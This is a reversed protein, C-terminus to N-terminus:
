YLEYKVLRCEIPGNFLVIRKTSKLGISKILELDSTFIYADHGSYRQKLTDGIAKYLAILKKTEGSNLREGYPPNTVIIGSDSKKQTDKFDSVKIEMFKRVDARRANSKAIEINKKSLDSAYIKGRLVNLKRSKAETVIKLYIRKNYSLLRQFGFSKRLLGPAIDLAILAAEIAITGSGCMFDHFDKSGDYGSLLLLAAALTERIPAEGKETRYGRKHLSEGSTDMNVICEDGSIRIFIRIDPDETDVSPRRGYLTRFSDAIADKVKLAAYGSHTIQSDKVNAFVAITQNFRFYDGWPLGKAGNYLEDASTVKFRAIELLVRAATRLWMNANYCDNLTGTFYVGSDGVTTDTISLAHLEGELVSEVGRTCTAFFKNERKRIV